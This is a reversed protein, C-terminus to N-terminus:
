NLLNEFGTLSADASLLQPEYGINGRVYSSRRVVDMGDV